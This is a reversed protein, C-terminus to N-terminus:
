LWIVAASADGGGTQVVVVPCMDDRRCSSVAPAIHLCSCDRLWSWAPRRGSKMGIWHHHMQPLFCGPQGWAGDLRPDAAVQSLSSQRLASWPEPLTPRGTIHAHYWGALCTYLGAARWPANNRKIMRIGSRQCKLGQSRANSQYGLQRNIKGRGHDVDGGDRARHLEDVADQLPTAGDDDQANGRPKDVFPAIANVDDELFNNYTRQGAAQM